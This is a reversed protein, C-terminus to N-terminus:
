VIPKALTIEACCGQDEYGDHLGYIELEVPYDQQIYNNEKMWQDAWEYVCPTLLGPDDRQDEPVLSKVFPDDYRVPIYLWRTAPLTLTEMGEELEEWNGIENKHWFNKVEKCLWYDMRSNKGSNCFNLSVGYFKDDVPNKVKSFIEDMQAFLSGIGEGMSNDKDIKACRGCLRIVDREVVHPKLM